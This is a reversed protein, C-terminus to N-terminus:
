NEKAILEELDSIRKDFAALNVTNALVAKARNDLEIIRRAELVQKKTPIDM